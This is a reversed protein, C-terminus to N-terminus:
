KISTQLNDFKGSMYMLQMQIDRVLIINYVLAAIILALLVLMMFSSDFQQGMPIPLIFSATNDTNVGANVNANSSANTLHELPPYILPPPYTAQQKYLQQAQKNDMNYLRNDRHKRRMNGVTQVGYRDDSYIYAKRQDRPHCNVNMPVGYQYAFGVDDTNVIEMNKILGPVDGPVGTYQDSGYNIGNDQFYM